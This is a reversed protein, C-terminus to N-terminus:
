IPIRSSGHIFHLGQFYVRDREQSLSCSLFQCTLLLYVLLHTDTSAM